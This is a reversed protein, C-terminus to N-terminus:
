HHRAQPLQLKATARLAELLQSDETDEGDCVRMCACAGAGTRTAEGGPINKRQLNSLYM